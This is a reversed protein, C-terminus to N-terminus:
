PSYLNDQFGPQIKLALLLTRCIQFRREPPRTLKTLRRSTMWKMSRRTRFIWAPSTPSRPSRWERFSPMHEKAWVQDPMITVLWKLAQRRGGHGDPTAIPELRRSLILPIGVVTRGGLEAISKVADLFKSIRAIDYISTTQLTLHAYVGCSPVLARLRGVPRAYIAVEEGNKRSYSDVPVKPDFPLYQKGNEDMKLQELLKPDESMIEENQIWLEKTRPNRLYIWHYSDAQGYRGGQKYFEFFADWSREIEPFPMFFEIAKPELSGYYQQFNEMAAQSVPDDRFTVRFHDLDDGVTEIDRGNKHIVKKPSGKRIRGLEIFSARQDTLGAIAM